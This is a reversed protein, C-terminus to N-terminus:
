IKKKVFNEEIKQPTISSFDYLEYKVYLIDLLRKFTLFEIDSVFNNKDKECYPVIFVFIDDLIRLEGFCYPLNYNLDEKRTFIYLEPEMIVGNRKAVAVKPLTDFKENYRLWKVTRSFPTLNDNGILGIVCKVLTKYVHMPEYQKVYSVKITDKEDQGDASIIIPGKRKNEKILPKIVEFYGWDKEYDENEADFYRAFKNHGFQFIPYGEKGKLGYQLRKWLLMNGFDEEANNSFFDNCIDCEENQFFKTNGIAEPIAHADEKFSTKGDGIYGGCYICKRKKKNQEGVKIRRNPVIAKWNYPLKYLFEEATQMEDVYDRMSLAVENHNMGQNYYDLSKQCMDFYKETQENYLYIYIKEGSLIDRFFKILRNTKKDSLYKRELFSIVRSKGDETVKIPQEIDKCEVTLNFLLGNLFMMGEEVPSIEWVLQQERKIFIISM